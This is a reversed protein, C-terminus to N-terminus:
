GLVGATASRQELFRPVDRAAMPRGLLYGQAVDCQPVALVDLQALEEVGEAVVTLGLARGLEVLAHVVSTAREDSGVAHIFARDIKLCDVPLAQLQSMSSYGTGFDDLAVRVGLARIAELQHVIKAGDDALVSETVEIQLTRPEIGTAGLVEVLHDTYGDDSLEVVSANVSMSLAPNGSDLQWQALQRCAERLAWRGMEIILGSTEAAPIFTSPPVRGLAPSQWRMLAEFGILGHDAVSVLPQYALTFEGRDFGPRLERQMRTQGVLLDEMSLNFMRYQGGGAQKAEYLAIDAYRLLTDVGTGAVAVAIGISADVSLLQGAVEYPTRLVELLRSAAHEGDSAPDGADIVVAFEDGGLRASQENARTTTRLRQAVQVLLQDGVPHGLTDNVGKFGDLDILLLATSSHSRRSRALSQGTAEQLGRRNPLGTLVDETAQRRLLDELRVRESVDRLTLVYGDVVPNDRKDSVTAEFWQERTGLQFLSPCDPGAGSAFLASVRGRDEPGVLALLDELRSFQAGFAEEAGPSTYSITGADTVIFLHVSAELLVRHRQTIERREQDLAARARARGEAVVVGITALLVFLLASVLGRMAVLASRRSGEAAELEIASFSASLEEFLPDTEEDDRDDAEDDFGRVHARATFSAVNAYAEVKRRLDAAEDPSVITLARDLQEDLSAVTAAVYEEDVSEGAEAGKELAALENLDARVSVAALATLEQQGASRFGMAAFVSAASVILM